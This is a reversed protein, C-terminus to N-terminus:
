ESETNKSFVCLSVFPFFTLTLTLTSTSFEDSFKIRAGDHTRTEIGNKLLLAIVAYFCTYYLRNISSNWKKNEILILVDDFSERARKFRYKIYEDQNDVNM